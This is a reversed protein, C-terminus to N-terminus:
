KKSEFISLVCYVLDDYFSSDSHVNQAKENRILLGYLEKEIRRQEKEIRRQERRKEIAKIAAIEAIEARKKAEDYDM